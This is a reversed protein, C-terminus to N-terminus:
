GPVSGGYKQVTQLYNHKTVLKLFGSKSLYDIGVGGGYFTNWDKGNKLYGDWAKDKDLLVAAEEGFIEVVRYFPVADEEGFLVAEREFLKVAETRNLVKTIFILGTDASVLPLSDTGDEVMGLLDWLVYTINERVAHALFRLSDSMERHSQKLLEEGCVCGANYSAGKELLAIMENMDNCDECVKELGQKVDELLKM